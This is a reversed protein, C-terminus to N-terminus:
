GSAAFRSPIKMSMSDSAALEDDERISDGFSIRRNQKLTNKKVIDNSEQKHDQENSNALDFM